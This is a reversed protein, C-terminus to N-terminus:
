PLRVLDAALDPWRDDNGEASRLDLSIDHGEVYGLARLGERLEEAEDRISVLMGIRPVRVNPQAQGPLRGCGTLLGLGAVGARRVFRRRSLPLGRQEAAM